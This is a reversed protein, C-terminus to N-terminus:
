EAMAPVAAHLPAHVLEALVEGPASARMLTEGVLFADAGAQYIRVVDEPGRIGSEAVKVVGSPIQDLLAETASLDTRFTKLDRSNVGVIGAGADLVAHLEDASHVEALVALGVEQVLRHLERFEAPTLVSAILLVADAGWARAEYVQYPDIIFDKRLLPISVSAGAARLFAPSGRFYRAETLVSLAAAGNLSLERALSVVNFDRRILGKSPSARKLEAIIRAKGDTGRRLAAAFDMAPEREAAQRRIEDEPVRQKSLQLSVRVRSVIEDVITM